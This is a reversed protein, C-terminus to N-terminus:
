SVRKVRFAPRGDVSMKYSAMVGRKIVVKGGPKLTTGLSLEDTQLWVTGDQLSVRWNGYGEESAAAITGELESVANADTSYGAFLGLSPLQLGFLSSRTKRVSAKDVVYVENSTIATDLNAVALDYCALRQGSDTLKRCDNLATISAPASAIEPKSRDRADANGGALWAAVAAATAIIGKNMLVEQQTSVNVRPDDGTTFISTNCAQLM